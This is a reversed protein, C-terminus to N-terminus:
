PVGARRMADLIREHGTRFIPNDISAALDALRSISVQPMLRRGTACAEAAQRHHDLSIEAAALYFWPIGFGPALAVATKLRQVAAEWRGRHLDALGLWFYWVGREPDRPSLRLAETVHVETEEPRGLFIKVLGFHGHVWPMHPDLSDAIELEHLAHAPATLAYVEACFFHTLADNPALALAKEIISQALRLQGPPDECALCKAESQLTNAFGLLAHLNHEDLRLAQEFLARAERTHELSPPLQKIGWGRLALEGSNEPQGPQRARRGEATLLETLLGRKLRSNIEDQMAFPDARPKDFREAWVHTGTGADILQVNLRIVDATSQVSGEIVFRVGLERGIDRANVQKGKFTFATNRAIVFAGPIRSLDTTLTDTLADAFSELIADGGLNVFPLVVLSLPPAARQPSDAIQAPASRAAHTTVSAAFMYGRRPVTKIIRQGQDALAIRVDSVCRALSEDSVTVDPWIAAILEDKPVLRGAHELLYRLVDFSKPRLEVDHDAARLSGRRLDLTFGEFSFAQEATTQM